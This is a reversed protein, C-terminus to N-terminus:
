MYYLLYFQQRLSEFLNTYNGCIDFVPLVVRSFILSIQNDATNIM